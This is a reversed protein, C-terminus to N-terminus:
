YYKQILRVVRQRLVLHVLLPLLLGLCVILWHIFPSITYHLLALKSHLFWQIVSVFLLCIIVVVLLLQSTKQTYFKHLVSPKHGLIALLKLQESSREIRLELFLKLLMISLFLIFLGIISLGLFVGHLISKVKSLKLKEEQTAYQHDRLFQVWKPNSPEKTKVVVRSSPPNNSHGFKSNAYQMFSAPILVSSYRHSFGAVEAQYTEAQAGEGITLTFSLAQISEESLQPLNQSLAFGFNYLNLFDSSLIIPILQEGEHWTWSSPKVDLYDEPISEFFLQTYFALEGGTSASIPFQNPVIKSIGEITPAHALQALEEDTFFSLENQGMMSNTIKKNIVLYDYQSEAQQSPSLIQDLDAYLQCTLLVMFCGAFLASIAVLHQRSNGINLINRLTNM